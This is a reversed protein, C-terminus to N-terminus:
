RSDPDGSRWPGNYPSLNRDNTFHFTWTKLLHSALDSKLESFSKRAAAHLVSGASAHVSKLFNHGPYSPPLLDSKLSTTPFVQTRSRNGIPKESLNSALRSLFLLLCASLSLSSSHSFSDSQHIQLPMVSSIILLAKFFLSISSFAFHPYLHLSRALRPHLSCNRSALAPNPRIPTQSQSHVWFPQIWVQDIQHASDSRAGLRVMGLAASLSLPCFFINKHGDNKSIEQFLDFCFKTNAAILSDMRFRIIDQFWFCLSVIIIPPFYTFLEWKLYGPFLWMRNNLINNFVPFYPWWWGPTYINININIKKSM